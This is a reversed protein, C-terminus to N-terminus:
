TFRSNTNHTFTRVWKTTHKNFTCLWRMLKRSLFLAPSCHWQRNRLHLLQLSVVVDYDGEEISRVQMKIFVDAQAKLKIMSEMCSNKAYMCSEHAGAGRTFANARLTSTPQAVGDLPAVDLTSVLLIALSADQCLAILLDLLADYCNKRAGIDLLSDNRLLCKLMSRFGTSLQLQQVLAAPINTDPGFAEGQYMTSLFLTLSQCCTMIADDMDRQRQQAETVHVNRSIREDLRSGGFGTGKIWAKASSSSSLVKSQGPHRGSRSMEFSAQACFLPFKDREISEDIPSDIVHIVEDLTTFHSLGSRKLSGAQDQIDCELSSLADVSSLADPFRYDNGVFIQLADDPSCGQRDFFIARDDSISFGLETFREIIALQPITLRCTMKLPADHSEIRIFPITEIIESREEAMTLSSLIAIADEVNPSTKLVQAVQGSDFGMNVLTDELSLESLAPPVPQIGHEFYHQIAGEVSIDPSIQASYTSALAAIDSDPLIVGFEFLAQSIQREFVSAM